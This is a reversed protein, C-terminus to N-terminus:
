GFNWEAPLEAGCVGCVFWDDKVVNREGCRECRRFVVEATFRGPHAIGARDLATAVMSWSGTEPCYGTSQNSIEEVAVGDGNIRFFMEGASLVVRGSACAVHESRQDAVLLEGAADIVFTATALGDPGPHQGTDRFWAILDSTSRILTGALQGASRARIDDPGVYPYLKMAQEERKGDV